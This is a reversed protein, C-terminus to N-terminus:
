HVVITIPFAIAHYGDARLEASALYSGPPVRTSTGAPGFEIGGGWQMNYTATEGTALVLSSPVSACEWTGNEPTVVRGASNRIFVLAQCSTPFTLQVEQDLTNTLTVTITTTEGPELDHRDRHDRRIIQEPLALNRRGRMWALWLSCYAVRNMIFSFRRAFRL